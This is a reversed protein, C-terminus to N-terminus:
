IRVGLRKGQSGESMDRSSDSRVMMRKQAVQMSWDHARQHTQSGPYCTTGRAFALLRLTTQDPHYLTATSIYIIIPYACTSLYNRLTALSMNVWVLLSVRSTNVLLCYVM